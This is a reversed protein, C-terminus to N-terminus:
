NHSSVGHLSPNEPSCVWQGNYNVDLSLYELKPFTKGLTEIEQDSFVRRKCIALEDENEHIKLCKLTDKLPKMSDIALIDICGTLYLEELRQNTFLSPLLAKVGNSCDSLRSTMPDFSLYRLNMSTSLLNLLHGPHTLSLKNFSSLDLFDFPSTEPKAIDHEQKGPYFIPGDLKLNDLRVVTNGQETQRLYLCKNHSNFFNTSSINLIRLNPCTPLIRFLEGCAMHQGDHIAIILSYLCSSNALQSLTSVLDIRSPLSVSLRCHPHHKHLASLLTPLMGFEHDWSSEQVKLGKLALSTDVKYSM